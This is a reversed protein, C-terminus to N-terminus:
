RIALPLSVRCLFLTPIHTWQLAKNLMVSMCDICMSLPMLLGHFWEWLLLLLCQKGGGTEEHRETIGGESVPCGNVWKRDRYTLRCKRSSQTCPVILLYRRRHSLIDEKVFYLQSENIDLHQCTVYSRCPTVLQKSLPWSVNLSSETNSVSCVSSRPLRWTSKHGWRGETEWWWLAHLFPQDM